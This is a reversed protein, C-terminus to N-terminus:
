MRSRTLQRSNFSFRSLGGQQPNETKRMEFSKVRIAPTYALVLSKLHFGTPTSTYGEIM